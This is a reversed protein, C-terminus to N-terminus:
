DPISQEFLLLTLAGSTPEEDLIQNGLGYAVHISGSPMEEQETFKPYLAALIAAGEPTILEGSVAATQYVIRHKELISRTEQEIANETGITVPSTCVVSNNDLDLYQMGWAIGTLLAVLIQPQSLNETVEPHDHPIGLRHLELHDSGELWGDNGLDGDDAMGDITKIYPKVDLIPTGDFLDLPGTYIRTGEVHHLRVRTLGIPSPRNPSRTAFIGYEEKKERWPPTVLVEPILSRNLYSFVYIHDFTELAQLGNKYQQKVDIYFDGDRRNDQNPQYPAKHIYPTHATGILNLSVTADPSHSSFKHKANRLISFVRRAFDSYTDKLEVSSLVNELVASSEDWSLREQDGLPTLHLRHAIIDDSLFELHVHVDLIIGLKEATDQMIQTMEKKPAGLGILAAAFRDASFGKKSDIWLGKKM